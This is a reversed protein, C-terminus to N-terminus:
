LFYGPIDLDFLEIFLREVVGLENVYETRKANYTSSGINYKIQEIGSVLLEAKEAFPSPLAAEPLAATLAEYSRMLETYSEHIDEIDLEPRKLESGLKAAATRLRGGDFGNEDAIDALSEAAGSLEMLLCHLGLEDKKSGDGFYFCDILEDFGATVGRYVSLGTSGLVLLIALLVALVPNKLAKM